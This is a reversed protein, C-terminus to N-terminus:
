KIEEYDAYEGEDKSFVKTRNVPNQKEASYQQNNTTTNKPKGFRFISRIFGLVFLLVLLVLFIIGFFLSILIGM